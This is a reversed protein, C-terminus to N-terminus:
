SIMGIWVRLHLTFKEGAETFHLHVLKVVQRLFQIQERKADDMSAYAKVVANPSNITNEREVTVTHEATDVTLNCVAEKSPDAVSTATITYTGAKAVDAATVRGDEVKVALDSSKWEM